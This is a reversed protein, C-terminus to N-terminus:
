PCMSDQPLGMHLPVAKGADVQWSQSHAVWCAYEEAGTLSESLELGLQYRIVAGVLSGSGSRSVSNSKFEQGM